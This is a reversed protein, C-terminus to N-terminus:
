NAIHANYKQLFAAWDSRYSAKISDFNANIRDKEKKSDEIVKLIADPNHGYLRLIQPQAQLIAMLQANGEYPNKCKALM